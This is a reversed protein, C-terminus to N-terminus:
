ARTRQPGIKQLFDVGRRATSASARPHTPLNVVHLSADEAVPCLGKDYDYMELPTEIPHLPCEFWTGLEIHSRPAEAVARAKDAVRVPYRVLVSEMQPDIQPLPWGAGELLRDYVEAIQRRHALNAELRKMQRLGARAQGPSMGMFFDSAMEPTFEANSSSGVVAGKRTLWRFVQTAM